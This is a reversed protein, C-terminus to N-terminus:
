ALAMIGGMMTSDAMLAKQRREKRLQEIRAKREEPTEKPKKNDNRRELEQKEKEKKREKEKEKMQANDKKRGLLRGFASSSSSSRPSLAETSTSTTSKSSTTAFSRVSEATKISPPPPPISTWNGNYAQQPWRKVSQDHAFYSAQGANFPDPNDVIGLDSPLYLDASSTLPTAPSTFRSTSFSSNSSSTLPPPTSQISDTFIRPPRNRLFANLSDHKDALGDSHESDTTTSISASLSPAVSPSFSSRSPHNNYAADPSIISTHHELVDDRDTTYTGADPGALDGLLDVLENIEQETHMSVINTRRRQSKRRKLVPLPTIEDENSNEDANVVAVAPVPTPQDERNEDVVFLSSPSVEGEENPTDQVHTNVLTQLEQTSPVGMLDALHNLDALSPRKTM